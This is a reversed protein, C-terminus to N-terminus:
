GLRVFPFRVSSRRAFLIERHPQLGRLGKSFEAYVFVAQAAYVSDYIATAYIHEAIMTVLFNLPGRVWL